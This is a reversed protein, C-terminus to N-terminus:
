IPPRWRWARRRRQSSRASPRETQSPWLSATPVTTARPSTSPRPRPIPSPTPGVFVFGAVSSQTATLNGTLGITDTAPIGGVGAVTLTRPVGNVFPGALGTGFRSDLLRAPTLPIYTAGAPGGVFYGTVDLLLHTSSGPAGKWVAALTGGPGLRVTANNARTDKLPVNITSSTPNASASPGVFVYGASTQGTVTVNGTVATATAPIGFGTVFFVVPSSNHIRGLLGTGVRTDLVRLPEIPRWTTGTPANPDAVVFYGTVDFILHTSAGAPAVYVAGLKGPCEAERDRWEGPDGRAPLEADVLNAIVHGRALSSMAPGPRGRSRSTAPSPSRAPPFVVAGPSRSSRPALAAFKGSLGIGDRTDLLRAPNLPVFSAGLPTDVTM